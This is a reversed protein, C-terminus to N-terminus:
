REGQNLWAEEFLGEVHFNGTAFNILRMITNPFLSSKIMSSTSALLDM